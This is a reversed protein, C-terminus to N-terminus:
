IVCDNQPDRSMIYRTYQAENKDDAQGGRHLVKIIPSVGRYLLTIM